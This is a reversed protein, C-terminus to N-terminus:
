SQILSHAQLKCTKTAKSELSAPSAVDHSAAKVTATYTEGIILGTITYSCCSSYILSTLSLDAHERTSSYLTINFGTVVYKYTPM